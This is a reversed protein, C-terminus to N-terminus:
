SRERFCCLWSCISLKLFQRPCSSTICIRDIRPIPLVRKTMAGGLAPLRDPGSGRLANPGAAIRAADYPRVRSRVRRISSFRFTRALPATWVHGMAVDAIRRGQAQCRNAGFGVVIIHDGFGGAM